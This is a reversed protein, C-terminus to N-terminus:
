QNEKTMKKIRRRIHRNGEVPQVADYKLIPEVYARAAPSQNWQVMAELAGPHGDHLMQVFDQWRISRQKRIIAILREHVQNFSMDLLVAIDALSTVYDAGIDEPTLSTRHTADFPTIDKSQM